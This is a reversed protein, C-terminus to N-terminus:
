VDHWADGPKVESIVTLGPILCDFYKAFHRVICVEFVARFAQVAAPFNVFVVGVVAGVLAGEWACTVVVHGILDEIDKPYRTYAWLVVSTTQKQLVPLTLVVRVGCGIEYSYDRWVVRFEPYALLTMVPWDKREFDRGCDLADAERDSIEGIIEDAPRQNSNEVENPHRQKQPVRGVAEWRIPRASLQRKKFYESDNLPEQKQPPPGPYITGNGRGEYIALLAREQEDHPTADGDKKISFTNEVAFMDHTIRPDASMKDRMYDHPNGDRPYQYQNFGVEITQKIDPPTTDRILLVSSVYVKVGQEMPVVVDFNGVVQGPRSGETVEYWKHM